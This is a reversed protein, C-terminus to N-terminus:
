AAIKVRKSSLIFDPVQKGIPLPWKEERKVGNHLQNCTGKRLTIETKTDLQCDQFLSQKISSTQWHSLSYKTQTFVCHTISSFEFNCNRFECNIFECNEMKTAFFTCSEFTVEKFTTLSFLSGSITLGSLNCSNLIENEIVEFVQSKQNERFSPDIHTKTAKM